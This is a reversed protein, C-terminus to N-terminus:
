YVMKELLVERNWTAAKEYQPGSLYQKDDLLRIWPQTLFRLSEEWDFTLHTPTTPELLENALLTLYKSLLIRIGIGDAIQHEVNFIFHIDKVGEADDTAYIQMSTPFSNPGAKSQTEKMEMFRPNHRGFKISLTEGCWKQAESDNRPVQAQLWVEGSESPIAVVAIDPTEYLLCLWSKQVALSFDSCSITTALILSGGLFMQQYEKPRYAWM